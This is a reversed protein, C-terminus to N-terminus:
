RCFIHNHAWALADGPRAVALVHFRRRRHHDVFRLQAYQGVATQAVEGGSERALIAVGNVTGDIVREDVGHWLLNASIWLLPRVILAAYIEDVYYKHFILTYLGHLSKALRKPAEPSKVYFWWAVLLGLIGVIVPWGTLAHFM